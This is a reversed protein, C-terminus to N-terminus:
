MRFTESEIGSGETAQRPPYKKHCEKVNGAFILATAQLIAPGSGEDGKGM